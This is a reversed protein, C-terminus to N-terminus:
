QNSPYPKGGLTLTLAFLFPSMCGLRVKTVVDPSELGPITDEEAASM